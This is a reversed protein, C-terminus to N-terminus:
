LPPNLPWYKVTIELAAATGVVQDKFMFFSQNKALMRLQLNEALLLVKDGVPVHVGAAVFKPPPSPKLVLAFAPIPM